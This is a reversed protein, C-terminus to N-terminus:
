DTESRPSPPTSSSLDRLLRQVARRQEGTLTLAQLVHQLDAVARDQRALQRHAVARSIWANVNQPDLRIVASFDEVARGHAGQWARLLGRNLLAAVNNPEIRLVTELDDAAGDPNGALRRLRGREALLSMNEPRDRVLADYEDLASAYDQAEVFVTALLLRSVFVQPREAVLQRAIALAGDIRGSPLDDFIAQTLRRHYAILDKPDDKDPDFGMAHDDAGTVYGLSQLRQRREAGVARRQESARHEKLIARIEDDMARARVPEEHLLNSHEQPDADIDYLEPRTTLIYKWRRGVLGWLGNGDLKQPTLSEVYFRRPPLPDAWAATLDRGDLGVPCPVDLMRCVTPVIDVLGVTGDIVVGRPGASVKVILPVKVASEYIFFGHTLEGHEGLMEGHDSTVIVITEDDLELTRLTELLRAIAHDVFAVEGAYPADAWATRFPYPPDYPVHPDYYHLFLFFREDDAHQTLWASAQDTTRDARQQSFDAGEESVPFDAQYTEFGQALGTEAHLIYSSVIAGTTIGEDRLMEALMRNADTVYGENHHVGHRLPILGTLMSAHAPLTQPVPSVANAFRIGEAALRDITPSVRGDYGYCGLHDARLTDISILIVHRGLPRSGASQLLLWGGACIVAVIVIVGIIIAPKRGM